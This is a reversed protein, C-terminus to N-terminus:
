MEVVIFGAPKHQNQHVPFPLVVLLAILLAHV